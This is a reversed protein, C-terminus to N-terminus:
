VIESTPKINFTQIINHALAYMTAVARSKDLGRLPMQRLGRNRAMANVWEASQARLKYVAKAYATGMRVRWNVVEPKDGPKKEYPNKGSALQQEEYRLPAYVKAGIQEVKLISDLTVFGGDALVEQPTLEYNEIFQELMPPLEHGDNGSNVCDVGVIIGSSVDTSFQVNYGPNYGGDSFQMHRSEPDTTSARVEKTKRNPNKKKNKEKQGEILECNRLAEEIRSKRSEMARKRTAQKRKKLDCASEDEQLELADLQEEVEHSLEELRSKSRFSGKGANARVRMGDQAVRNMTVLGQELLSSVVQTFLSKWKENHKSRFDALLHYNVSVGGCLWKYAIHRNCLRELERASGVGDLIALLWLSVLLRPDTADRGASGEFSRVEDLWVSLDLSNVVEWVVRAQHEIDLLEDLSSCHIEVQNREPIRLRLM